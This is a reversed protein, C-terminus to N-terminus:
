FYLQILDIMTILMKLTYTEKIDKRQSTLKSM